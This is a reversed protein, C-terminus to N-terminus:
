SITSLDRSNGEREDMRAHIMGTVLNKVNDWEEEDIDMPDEPDDVDQGMLVKTERALLRSLFLAVRICSVPKLESPGIRLTELTPSFAHTLRFSSFRETNMYLSLERLRPCHEACIPLAGMTLNPPILVAPRFNLSLDELLPLSRVITLLDDDDLTLPLAQALHLTTLSQIALLPKIAVATLPNEHDHDHFDSGGQCFEQMVPAPQAAVSIFFLKRLRSADLSPHTLLREADSLRLYVSLNILSPFAGPELAFSYEPADSISEFQNGCCFRHENLTYEFSITRLDALKSLETLAQDNLREAPLTIETLGQYGQLLSLLSGLGHEKGHVWDCALSTIRPM